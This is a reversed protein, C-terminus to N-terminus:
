RSKRARAVAQPEDAIEDVAARIREGHQAVHLREAGGGDGNEAVVIQMQQRHGRTVRLRVPLVRDRRDEFRGIAVLEQMPEGAPRQHRDFAVLQEDVRAEQGCPRGRRGDRQGGFDLRHERAFVGVSEQASEVAVLRVLPVVIELAEVPQARDDVGARSHAEAGGVARHLELLLASRLHRRGAKSRPELVLVPLGGAAVM